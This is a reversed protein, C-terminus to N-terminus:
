SSTARKISYSRANSAFRTASPWEVAQFSFRWKDRASSSRAAHAELGKCPAARAAPRETMDSVVVAMFGATSSAQEIQGNNNTNGWERADRALRIGISRQSEQRM